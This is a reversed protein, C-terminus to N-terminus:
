WGYYYYDSPNFDDFNNFVTFAFQSIVKNNDILRLEKLYAVPLIQDYDSYNKEYTLGKCKDYCLKLVVYESHVDATMVLTRQQLTPEVGALSAVVDDFDTPPIWIDTWTTSQHVNVNQFDRKVLLPPSTICWLGNFDINHLLNNKAYLYIDMVDIPDVSIYRGTKPDYYRNWNYNLGTEADYYQGPFRLNNTVRSTSGITAEGFSTYVASWAVNGNVDTMKQPTGLHDNHYFYTNGGTAMLVQNTSWTSNPKWGYTKQVNGSSDMEAILGEDSYMFYTTTGDVTKSIRRGFPDYLYNAIHGSPLNVQTLRDNATYSYNTIMGNNNKSTTNGNQDYMYNVGDYGILANNQNYTWNSADVSTLRNGVKDYSFSEAPLSPRTAGALRYIDDYTYAYNGRETNRGTINGVSDFMYQYNMVTSGDKRAASIGTLWGDANYEYDTNM